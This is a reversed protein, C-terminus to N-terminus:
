GHDEIEFHLAEVQFEELHIYRAGLQFISNADRVATKLLAIADERHEVPVSLDIRVTRESVHPAPPYETQDANGQPSWYGDAFSITVGGFRRTIAIGMHRAASDLTDSGSGILALFHIRKSSSM